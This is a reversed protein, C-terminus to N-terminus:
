GVFFCGNIKDVDATRSETTGVMEMEAESLRSMGKLHRSELFREEGGAPEVAGERFCVNGDGVGGGGRACIHKPKKAGM